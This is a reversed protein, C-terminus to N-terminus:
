HLELSDRLYIVALISFVYAQLVAVFLELVIFLALVILPVLAAVMCCSFSIFSSFISGIFTLDLIFCSNSLGIILGLSDFSLVDYLAEEYTEDFHVFPKTETKFFNDFNIIPRLLL